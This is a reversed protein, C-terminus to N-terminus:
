RKLNNTFLDTIGTYDQSKPDSFVVNNLSGNISGAAGKIEEYAPKRYPLGDVPMYGIVRYPIDKDISGIFKGIKRIEEKDIVDPIFVSSSSLEIGNEYLFKFNNLPTKNSKGTYHKHLDDDFAKISLSVHSLGELGPLVHGNTMLRVECQFEDHLAKPLVSFEYNEVPDGSIIIVKKPSVSKLIKMVNELNLLKLEKFNVKPYIKKWYCGICRFNCGIFYLSCSRAVPNYTIRHINM